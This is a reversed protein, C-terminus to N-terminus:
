RGTASSRTRPFAARPATIPIGAASNWISNEFWRSTTCSRILLEGYIEKTNLQAHTDGQAFVGIVQSVFTNSGNLHDNIFDYKWKRYDAGLAFQSMGMPLRFLDGTLNLDVATQRVRSTAQTDIAITDICDQSVTFTRFIPLGSTCTGVGSSTPSLGLKLFNVGYNPSEVVAKYQAMDAFGEGITVAETTGYSVSADWKWRNPLSGELGTTVGLTTVRNHTQREPLYDLVRHIRVDANRDTSSRLLTELEPPLPFAQSETCGGTAPCNLKYAGGARYEPKTTVGDTALSDAWLTGEFGVPITAVWNNVAPSYQTATDTVSHAVNGRLYLSIADTFEYEAKGFMSLRQLPVTTLASLNNERLLSDGTLKRYAEGPYAPDEFPGTYRYSGANGNTTGFAAGGTFLKGTGDATRNVFFKSTPTIGPCAAGTGNPLTCSPVATFISNIAAQTPRQNSAAISFDVYTEPLIAETGATYPDALFRRRFERNLDYAKSRNAFETGVMVNGRSNAFTTGVLASVQLEEGDGEQTVGYRATLDMGQFRDKLIFNVVGAVADAGYVASAGGSIIEVREIASSPISNTDVNLTANLPTARRGDILTLTRFSGLGRLNVVSSGPTTTATAQLTTSSFESLAPVFQPLQNLVTEIGITGTNSFMETDVTVTPSNAVYDKRQIRSGTVVIEEPENAPATQAAAPMSLWASM